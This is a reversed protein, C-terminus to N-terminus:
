YITGNANCSLSVSANVRNGTSRVFTGTATATNGSRSSSTSSCSWSSSYIEYTVSSATCTASIGTYTFSGHVTLKWAGTSETVDKHGSVSGSARGVTRTQYVSVIVSTGDALQDQYQDILIESGSEAFVPVAFCFACVLALALCLLKKFKM